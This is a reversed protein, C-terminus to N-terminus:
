SKKTLSARREQPVRGDGLRLGELVAQEHLLTAAGEVRGVAVSEEHLVLESVVACGGHLWERYIALCFFVM